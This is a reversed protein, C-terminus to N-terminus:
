LADRSMNLRGHNAALTSALGSRRRNLSKALTTIKLQQGPPSVKTEALVNALKRMSDADYRKSCGRLLSAHQGIPDRPFREGGQVVPKDHRDHKLRLFAFGLRKRFDQPHHGWRRHRLRPDLKKEGIAGRGVLRQEEHEFEVEVLRRPPRMFRGIVEFRGDLLQQWAHRPALAHWENGKQFLYYGCIVISIAPGSLP